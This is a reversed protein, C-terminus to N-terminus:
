GRGGLWERARGPGAALYVLGARDPPFGVRPLRYRGDPDARYRAASAYGWEGTLAAIMGHRCVSAIERAGFDGPEGNPYCFVPMPRTVEERLRAWSGAVEREVEDDGAFSLIPHMVSHPGFSMGGRELRRADDWTMPAFEPPPVRPIEVECERALAALGGELDADRLDKAAMVLDLHTQRLGAEAGLRLAVDRSGFRVRAPRRRAVRLVHALRDYWFWMRGDVFGTTLFTTVPCDFEAFLPGAIAAQDWYGDDMTFAVTRALPPGEGALRRLVDALAALEYGERRLYALARRVIGPDIADTGTVGRGPHRFRHLLFIVACGRTFRTFPVTAGPLLVARRLLDRM